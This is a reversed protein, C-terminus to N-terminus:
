MIGELQHLLRRVSQDMEEGDVNFKKNVLLMPSYDWIGNRIEQAVSEPPYHM